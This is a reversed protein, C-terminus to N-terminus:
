QQMLVRQEQCYKVIMANSLRPTELLACQAAAAAPDPDPFVRQWRQQQRCCRRWEAETERIAEPLLQPPVALLQLQEVDKITRAAAVAAVAAATVKSSRSSSSSGSAPMPPKGKSSSSGTNSMVRAAAAAPTPQQQLGTLREQRDAAQTQEYVQKDCPTVGVLGLLDAVQLCTWLPWRMAPPVSLISFTDLPLMMQMCALGLLDAVQLRFPWHMWSATELLIQM